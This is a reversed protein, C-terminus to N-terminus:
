IYYGNSFMQVNCAFCGYITFYYNQILNRRPLQMVTVAAPGALAQPRDSQRNVYPRKMKRLAKVLRTDADESHNVVHKLRQKESKNIQIGSLTASVSFKM